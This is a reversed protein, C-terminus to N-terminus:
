GLTKINGSLFAHRPFNKDAVAGYTCTLGVWAGSSRADPGVSSDIIESVKHGSILRVREM